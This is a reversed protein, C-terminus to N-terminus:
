WISSNPCGYKGDLGCRAMSLKQLNTLSAWGAPIGGAFKHEDNGYGGDLVLQELSFPMVRPLKGSLNHETLDIVTANIESM